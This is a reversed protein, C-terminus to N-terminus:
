FIEKEKAFSPCSDDLSVTIDRLACRYVFDEQLNPSKEINIYALRHECFQCSTSSKEEINQGVHQYSKKGVPVMKRINHVATEANMTLAQLVNRIRMQLYAQVGVVVAIFVLFFSVLNQDLVFAGM